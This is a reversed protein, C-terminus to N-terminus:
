SAAQLKKHMKELTKDKYSRLWRNMFKATSKEGVNTKYGILKKIQKKVVPISQRHTWPGMGLEQLFEIRFLIETKNKETIENMDIFMMTWCFHAALDHEEKTWSDSNIKTYDYKLAMKEETTTIGSSGM